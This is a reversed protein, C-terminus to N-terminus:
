TIMRFWFYKSPVDKNCTIYTLISDKWILVLYNTDGMELKPFNGFISNLRYAVYYM